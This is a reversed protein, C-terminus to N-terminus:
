TVLSNFTHSIPGQLKRNLWWWKNLARSFKCTVWVVAIYSSDRNIGCLVFRPPQMKLWEELKHVNQGSKHTANIAAKRQTKTLTVNLGVFNTIPSPVEMRLDTLTEGFL